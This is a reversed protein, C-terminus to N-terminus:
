PQEAHSALPPLPLSLLEPVRRQQAIQIAKSLALNQESDLARWTNEEPMWLGGAQGNLSQYYLATRGMRFFNVHNKQGDIVLSDSYAEITRGYGIEVLYAELLQRYKEAVSVDARDLLRALKELRQQREGQLFPLDNNVLVNLQDTMTKLMPLMFQETKDISEIQALLDKEEQHQADILRSLQRNYAETLDAQQVNALHQDVMQETKTSIKDIKVQSKAAGSHSQATVSLSKDLSNPAALATQGFLSCGLGALLLVGIKAM